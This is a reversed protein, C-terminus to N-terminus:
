AGSAGAGDLLNELGPLVWHIRTPAMNLFRDITVSGHGLVLGALKDLKAKLASDLQTLQVEEGELELWGM